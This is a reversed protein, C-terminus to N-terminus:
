KDHNIQKAQYAEIHKSVQQVELSITELYKTLDFNSALLKTQYNAYAAKKLTLYASLFEPGLKSLTEIERLEELKKFLFDKRQTWEKYKELTTTLLGSTLTILDSSTLPKPEQLIQYASCTFSPRDKEKNDVFYGELEVSSGKKIAPKTWTGKEDKIRFIVPIEKEQHQEQCVLDLQELKACNECELRFFGYAPIDSSPKVEIRSTLTGKITIREKPQEKLQSNAVSVGLNNEGNPTEKLNEKM